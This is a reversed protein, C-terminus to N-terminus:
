AADDDILLNVEATSKCDFSRNGPSCDDDDDDDDDDEDDDDDDDDDVDPVLLLPLLPLVLSM